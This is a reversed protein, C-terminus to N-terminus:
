PTPTKGSAIGAAIEAAGEATRPKGDDKNCGHGRHWDQWRGAFWPASHNGCVPRTGRCTHGYQVDGCEKCLAIPKLKDAIAAIVRNAESIQVADAARHIQTGGTIWTRALAYANALRWEVESGGAGPVWDSSAIPEAPMEKYEYARPPNHAAPRERALDLEAQAVQVVDGMVRTLTEVAGQLNLMASQTQELEARLARADHENM